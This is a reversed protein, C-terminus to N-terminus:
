NGNYQKSCSGLTEPFDLSYNKLYASFYTWLQPPPICSYPPPACILDNDTWFFSFIVLITGMSFDFEIYNEHIKKRHYINFNKCIPFGSPCSLPPCPANDTWFFLFIVLVIGMSFDFTVYNEYKKKRRDTNFFKVFPHPQLPAPQPRTSNIKQCIEINNWWHLLLFMIHWCNKNNNVNYIKCM